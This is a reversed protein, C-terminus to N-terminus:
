SAPCAAWPSPRGPTPGRHPTCAPLRGRLPLGEAVAEGRSLRRGAQGSSSAPTHTHRRPWAPASMSTDTPSSSPKTHAPWISSPNVELPFCLLVGIGGRFVHAWCPTVTAPTPKMECSSKHRSPFPPQAPPPDGACRRAQPHRDRRRVRMHTGMQQVACECTKCQCM